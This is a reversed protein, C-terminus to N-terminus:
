IPWKCRELFEQFRIRLSEQSPSANKAFTLRKGELDGYECNLGPHLAIKMHTPEVGLLDLDFLTHIDARLLLGNEAHNDKVGRYPSIHAAELIALISCETVQCCGGYRELLITRFKQQGRRARIQRSVIERQDSSDPVFAATGEIESDDAIDAGLWRSEDFTEPVRIDTAHADRNSFIQLNLHQRDFKWRGDSDRSVVLDHDRKLSQFHSRITSEENGADRLQEMTAGDLLLDDIFAYKGGRGGHGLWNKGGKYPARAPNLILARTLAKDREKDRNASM